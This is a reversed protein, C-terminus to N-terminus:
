TKQQLIQNENISHIEIRKLVLLCDKLGANNVLKILISSLHSTRNKYEDSTLGTGNLELISTGDITWPHLDLKRAIDKRWQPVTQADRVDPIPEFDEPKQLYLQKEREGHGLKKVKSTDNLIKEIFTMNNQHMASMGNINNKSMEAMSRVSAQIGEKIAELSEKLESNSDSGGAVSEPTM